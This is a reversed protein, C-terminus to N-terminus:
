GLIQKGIKDKMLRTARSKSINWTPDPEMYNGYNARLHEDYNSPVPMKMGLFDYDALGNFPLTIRRAWFGGTEEMFERAPRSPDTIFDYCYVEDKGEVPNFYFIDISVNQCMYTEEFGDKGDDIMIHRSRTFGYQKMLAVMNNPREKLFMGVDIDDDHKIFGKERIAGILTGFELWYKCGMSKLAQDFRQLVQLSNRHFDAKKQETVQKKYKRYLDLFLFRLLKNKYCKDAIQRILKIEKM